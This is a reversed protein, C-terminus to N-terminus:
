KAVGDIYKFILNFVKVETIRKHKIQKQIFELKYSYIYIDFLPPACKAGIHIGIIQGRFKDLMNDIILYELMSSFENETNCMKNKTENKVFYPLEWYPVYILGNLLWNEKLKFNM